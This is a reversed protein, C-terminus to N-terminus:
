DPIQEFRVHEDGILSARYGAELWARTQVHGFSSREENAWWDARHARRPLLAALLREIDRLSVDYTATKRRRLHAGLPDYKGMRVEGLIGRRATGASGNAGAVRTSDYGNVSIRLIDASGASGGIIM